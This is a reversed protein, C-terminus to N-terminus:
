LRSKEAFAARSMEYQRRVDTVEAPTMVGLHRCIADHRADEAESDPFEFCGERCERFPVVASLQIADDGAGYAFLDAQRHTDVRNSACNPCRVLTLKAEANTEHERMVTHESRATTFVEDSFIGM